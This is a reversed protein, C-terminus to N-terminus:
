CPQLLVRGRSWGPQVESASGVGGGSAWTGPPTLDGCGCAEQCGPGWGGLRRVEVMVGQGGFGVWWVELGCVWLGKNGPGVELRAGQDGPGLGQGLAGAKGTRM